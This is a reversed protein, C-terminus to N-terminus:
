QEDGGILELLREEGGIMANDILRVRGVRGAVLAVIGGHDSHIRDLKAMSRPHRVVAYDVQIRDAEMVRRMVGEVIGPDEEGDEQVLMEAERLAKYLGLAHCQEDPGLMKNRSSLALGDENRVTPCTVLAVPVNLDRCLAEVIRLQQYDKQGFCTMDPTLVNLLKLVVRCVGTFHNPRHEGELFEALPPINVDCEFQGVPYMEEVTPCFVGTLERRRCHALDEDLCRPYREYDEGPGFQGPNVFISVIVHDALEDARRMLSLHGEHLSGMTAVFAVRGRMAKRRQRAESITTAIWM